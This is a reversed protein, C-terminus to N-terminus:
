STCADAGKVFGKRFAAVRSFASGEGDGLSVFTAIGEDLDGPSLSIAKDALRRARVGQSVDGAWSGTLCDATTHARDSTISEGQADMAASSWAAALVMGAGFDGSEDYVQELANPDYRVTDDSTCFTVDDVLVGGDSTGDCSENATAQLDKVPTSGRLETKWYDDLDPTILDITQDLPLDGGNVYDEQSSFGTETVEPPDSEYDACQPAGDNFGDQFASVRDFANGHAGQVSPDVGPPDRFELFGGLAIDLDTDGIPLSPDDQEVHQAWSGAFCDAQTELYVTANLSSSTRAQIAHGWEHALVLAIAFGGFKQELRPFLEQEDWAVFDGESCYFANGAVQEYPTTGRGGCAPPPNDESYAFVREPPIPEYDEGYVDPLQDAWWSQIDDITADVVTHLDPSQAAATSGQAAATASGSSSSTATEASAFTSAGFTSATSGAVLLTALCAIVFLRRPM